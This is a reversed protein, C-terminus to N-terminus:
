CQEVNRSCALCLWLLQTMSHVDIVPKQFTNLYLAKKKGSRLLLLKLQKQFHLYLSLELGLVIAVAASEGTQDWQM